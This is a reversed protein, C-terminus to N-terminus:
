ETSEKSTSAPLNTLQPVLPEIQAILTQPDSGHLRLYTDIITGDDTRWSILVLGKPEVVRGVTWTARAVAVLSSTEILVPREGALNLAVGAVSVTVTTQARFALGTIVLRDLPAQHTTSAVYLGGHAEGGHAAIEAATRTDLPATIGSDRHKRTTWGWIMLAFVLLGVGLMVLVAAERSM